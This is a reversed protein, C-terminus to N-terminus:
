LFWWAPRVEKIAKLCLREKRPVRSFSMLHPARGDSQIRAAINQVQIDYQRALRRLESDATISGRGAPSMPKYPLSQNAAQMASLAAAGSRAPAPEWFTRSLYQSSVRGDQSTALPKPIM